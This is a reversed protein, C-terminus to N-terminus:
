SGGFDRPCGRPRPTAGPAGSPHRGPCSPFNQRRVGRKRLPAPPPCAQLPRLSPLPHPGVLVALPRSNHAEGRPTPPRWTKSALYDFGHIPASKSQHSHKRSRPYATHAHRRTCSKQALHKRVSQLAKGVACVTCDALADTGGPAAAATSKGAPCNSCTAGTANNHGNRPLYTGAACNQCGNPDGASAFKGAVCAVCASRATNSETGVANCNQCSSSETVASIKGMPCTQCADGGTAFKGAACATCDTLADTGSPAAATTSKGAPCSSCSAATVDDGRTVTVSSVVVGGIKVTPTTTYGSGAATVKIERLVGGSVHAYAQAGSGGGGTINVSVNWNGDPYGSGTGASPVSITLVGNTKAVFKGAACNQCGLADGAAAFKGAACAACDSLADTGSPAAAATTKGAACDNCTAGTATGDAVRPLYKGVACNTCVSAGAAAFKGAVCAACSASGGSAGAFKGPDCTSCTAATKGGVQALYTGTACPQCGLPDGQAAFKGASCAVCDTPSSGAGAPVSTGPYCDACANSTVYKGTACTSCVQGLHAM